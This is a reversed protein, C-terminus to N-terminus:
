FHGRIVTNRRSASFVARLHGLLVAASLLGDRGLLERPGRRPSLRGGLATRAAEAAYVRPLIHSWRTKRPSILHRVAARPEYIVRGIGALRRSLEYDDAIVGLGACPWVAQFGSEGRVASRRCALNGGVLFERRYDLDRRQEGLDLLGLLDLVRSNRVVWAPPPEQWDPRIPGGAALVQPDGFAGALAELWGPEPRIDDDIFLLIEGKAEEIGRNRAHHVGIRPERLARAGPFSKVVAEAAGGGNDVVLVEDAFPRQEFVARLCGSLSEADRGRTPIVVTISSGRSM